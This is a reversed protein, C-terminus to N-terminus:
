LSDPHKQGWFTTEVAKTFPSDLQPFAAACIARGAELADIHSISLVGGATRLNRVAFMRRVDPKVHFALQLLTDRDNVVAVQVREEWPDFLLPDADTTARASWGVKFMSLFWRRSAGGRLPKIPRLVNVWRIFPPRNRPLKRRLNQVTRRVKGWRIPDSRRNKFRAGATKQFDPEFFLRAAAPNLLERLADLGQAVERLPAEAREWQRENLGKVAAAAKAAEDELEDFKVDLSSISKAVSANAKNVPEFAISNVDVSLVVSDKLQAAFDKANEDKWLGKAPKFVTDTKKGNM